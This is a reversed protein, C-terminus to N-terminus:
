GALINTAAIIGRIVRRDLSFLSASLPHSLGDLMTGLLKELREYRTGEALGFVARLIVRMSITQMPKRAVFPQGPKIEHMVQETLGYILEGYSRMREGHFPPMLLQRARRHQEGSLGFVSQTGTM